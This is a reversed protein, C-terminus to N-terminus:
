VKRWKGAFPVDFCRKGAGNWNSGEQSMFSTINSFSKYNNKLWDWVGPKAVVYLDTAHYAFDDPVLGLGANMLQQQLEPLSETSVNETTM